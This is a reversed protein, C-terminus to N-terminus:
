DCEVRLCYSCICLNLLWWSTIYLKDCISNHVVYNLLHVDTSTFTLFWNPKLLSGVLFYWYRVNLPLATTTQQGDWILMLILFIKQSTGLALTQTLSSTLQRVDACIQLCLVDITLSIHGVTVWWCNLPRFIIRDDSRCSRWDHYMCLYACKGPSAVSGMSSVPSHLMGSPPSTMMGYGFYGQQAAAFNQQQIMSAHIQAMDPKRDHPHMTPMGGPPGGSQGNM